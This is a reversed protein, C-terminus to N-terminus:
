ETAPRQSSEEISKIVAIWNFISDIRENKKKKKSERRNQFSWIKMM